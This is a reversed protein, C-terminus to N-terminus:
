KVRDSRRLTPTKPIPTTEKVQKIDEKMIIGVDDDSDEGVNINEDLSGVKKDGVSELNGVENKFTVDRSKIMKKSEIDYLRYGKTDEYYRMFVMKRTKFDFKTRKEKPVFTFATCGFIQM